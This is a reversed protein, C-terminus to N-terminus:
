PDHLGGQPDFYFSNWRRELEGVDGAAATPDPYHLAVVTEEADSQVRYGLLALDYPSLQGWQDPGALYRNRRASSRTNVTNWNEM